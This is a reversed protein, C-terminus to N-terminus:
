LASVYGNLVFACVNAYLVFTRRTHQFFFAFNLIMDPCMLFMNQLSPTLQDVNSYM